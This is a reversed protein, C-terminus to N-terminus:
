LFEHVFNTQACVSIELQRGPIKINPNQLSLARERLMGREVWWDDAADFADYAWIKVIQGWLGMYANDDWKDQGTQLLQQMEADRATREVGPPFMCQTVNTAEMQHLFETRERRISEYARVLLPIHDFGRVYSLLTCLVAASEVAVSCNQTSCPILPRAAEGILVIRSSEDSWNEIQPWDLWRQWSFSDIKEFLRGLVRDSTTDGLKLSKAPLNPSWGEPVDPESRDWWLHVAFETDLSIPYGMFCRRPGLWYPWTYSFGETKLIDDELIKRMPVNGTFAVTGTIRPEVDEEQVSLRVTSHPGDAGIIMDAELVIGDSLHVSPREWSPSPSRASDSAESFYPPSVLSVKADFIVEAGARVAATYLIEQLDSNRMMYFKSGSEQIIPEAWELYGLLKGTEYDWLNSGERIVTGRRRLDDELGWQVLIKTVNPTLRIGGFPIPLRSSGELVRVTHGSMALGIAMSLGATSGGVIIVDLKFPAPQPHPM